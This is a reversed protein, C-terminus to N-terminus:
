DPAKSATTSCTGTGSTITVLGTTPNVACAGTASFTVAGSGSGGSTGVTFTAGYPQAPGPMGTVSLAAQSALAAPVTVAASTTNTYNTDASKTATVSCIGTGSTM